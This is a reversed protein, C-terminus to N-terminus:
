FDDDSIDDRENNRRNTIQSPVIEESNAVNPAKSRVSAISTLTGNTCARHFREESNAFFIVTTKTGCHYHLRYRLTLTLCIRKM